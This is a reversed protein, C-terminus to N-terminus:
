VTGEKRPTAVVDFGRAQRRRPIFRGFMGRFTSSQLLCLLIIIGSKCVLTAEPAVGRALITTTLMQIVLAGLVSGLLSFRGGALSTGGIAAALIADLELYLGTNNVDAAKIDATVLLGAAGALLGSVAYCVLRVGVANVGAIRSAVRNNGVAEVFLGLATGRVFVLMVAAATMAIVTPVPFMLLSGSGLWTFGEHEFTPIQGNTILQAVGRGAVMLILTAVIPQLRFISVLVGNWVGALLAIALGAALVLTLSNNVHVATLPSGDPPSILCAAVAGALAMVAGVSLDIGGTAIVLTMGLSLLLTPAGRNLVDIVSGYLRGDVVKVDFFGPTFFFNFLLLAALALTPWTLPALGRLRSGRALAPPTAVYQLSGPSASM